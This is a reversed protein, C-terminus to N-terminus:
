IFFLIKQNKLLGVIKPLFVFFINKVTGVFYNYSINTLKNKVKNYLFIM